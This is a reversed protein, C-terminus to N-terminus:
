GNKRQLFHVNVLRGTKKNLVNWYRYRMDSITLNVDSCLTSSLTKKDVSWNRRCNMICKEAMKIEIEIVLLLQPTKFVSTEHPCKFHEQETHPITLIM